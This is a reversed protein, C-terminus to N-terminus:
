AQTLIEYGDETVLITHEFHCGLSGDRLCVTWGDDDDEVIVTDPKGLSSMPEICITDGAKLEYGTGKRGYNPVEPEMHMKKGIGHGVYNRIVGLKGKELTKEVAAGIDGLKAGAKVQAIGEYLSSETFSLLHKQAATPKGIIMTFASDVYYGQYKIVLDYSIKDGEEFPIDKPTGHILEDNVSICISGPFNVEPEYYAVGAGADLIKKEVWKSIEKGTMGAKTYEKLEAFIQAMIKGGARMASIKKEDM